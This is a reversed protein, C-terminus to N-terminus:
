PVLMVAALRRTRSAIRAQEEARQQEFLLRQEPERRERAEEGALRQSAKLFQSEAELIEDTHAAAWIEGEKLAEGRLL